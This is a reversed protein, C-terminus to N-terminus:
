LIKTIERLNTVSNWYNKFSNESNKLNIYISDIGANYAGKIDRELDDGIFVTASTDCKIHKLATKFTKIDPKRWGIEDSILITDFYPTISYRDLLNNATPSYDFNSLISLNYNKEKLYNLVDRHNEPFVMSKELSEMHSLVLSNLIDDDYDLRMDDLMINFRKSNPYERNDINKLEQFKKYSKYFYEYFEDFSYNIYHKKFVSYVDYGTSHRTVGSLNIEPLLEPKFLILTDFLDFIINKYLKM